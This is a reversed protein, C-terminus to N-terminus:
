FDCLSKVKARILQLAKQGFKFPWKLDYKMGAIFFSVSKRLDKTKACCIVIDVTDRTRLQRLLKRVPKPLSRQQLYFSTMTIHENAIREFKQDTISFTMSGIHQRYQYVLKNLNTYRLRRLAFRLMFERDAVIKYKRKFNGIQEFVSRRFFWANFYPDGITSNELISTGKPSFDSVINTEGDPSVTYILAEGAVAQVRDDEFCNAIESFINKAYLDDSNLFGIIEGKALDLGKNLADYMGKDHGVQIKLHPYKKLLELTGDTSGGDIIIHEFNPYNQLLVSEIAAAIMGARNLSPTIISIKPFNM